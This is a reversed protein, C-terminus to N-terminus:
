ISKIFSIIRRAQFNYNFCTATLEQGRSAVRKAYDYNQLVFDLKDALCKNNEPEVLFANIGDSLYKPIEGVNVTVLPISTCLYETLKSPFSAQSEFDNGRVMVLIKANSIYTLIEDRPLYDLLRVKSSIKLKKILSLMQEKEKKSGSGGIVLYLQPHKKSVVSFAKILGGINDRKFSLNGFYGIYDNSLPNKNTQIFRSPDVTSPILFLKQPTIGFKVHLNILFKSICFIGDSLKSEIKLKVIGQKKKFDNKQFGRFPHESCEKILKSRTILSLFWAFLHTSLLSTYVIIAITKDNKNIRHLISITKLYKKINNWRRVVFYKSREKRKFPNYFYIDNNKGENVANFLNLFCVVHVNIDNETLGKAYTHVRNTAAGGDPFTFKDGFIVISM